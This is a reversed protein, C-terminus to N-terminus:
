SKLIDGFMLFQALSYVSIAITVGVTSLISTGAGKWLSLVGEEALIHGGADFLSNYKV